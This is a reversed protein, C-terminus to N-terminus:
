TIFVRMTKRATRKAEHGATFRQTGGEGLLKIRRKANM